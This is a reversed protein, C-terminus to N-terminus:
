GVRNFRVGYRRLYLVVEEGLENGFDSREKAEIDIWVIRRDSLSRRVQDPISRLSLFVDLGSPLNHDVQSDLPTNEIWLCCVKRRRVFWKRTERVVRVIKGDLMADLGHGRLFGIMELIIDDLFQIKEEDSIKRPFYPEKAVVKAPSGMALCHPPIKRNVFSNAGIMAGDGINAGVGIFVRWAIGVSKGIVIPGADVHYGEFKNLWSAHGFVLSDGGICSDDGMTVSRTPNIFTMQMIQCNKGVTFRSDPFQMGGVFVQENIKTGDGIEVFPTDIMTFSGISVHAGLRIEKGRLFSFFGINTHDGIEVKEGCVVSGIGIAVNRGIRYGRIRYVLRKLASPLFGFLIIEKLPFRSKATLM